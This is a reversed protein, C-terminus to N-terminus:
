CVGNLPQKSQPLRVLAAEQRAGAAAAVGEAARGRHRGRRHLQQSRAGVAGGELARGGAQLPEPSASSRSAGQVRVLIHGYQERVCTMCLILM